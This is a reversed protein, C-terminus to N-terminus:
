VNADISVAAAGCELGEVVEETTSPVFTFVREQLREVAELASAVDLQGFLPAHVLGKDVAPDGVPDGHGNSREPKSVVAQTAVSVGLRLPWGTSARGVM